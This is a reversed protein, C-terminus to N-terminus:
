GSTVPLSLFLGWAHVCLFTSPLHVPSAPPWPQVGGPRELWSGAAGGLGAAAEGGAPLGTHPDGGPVLAEGPVWRGSGRAGSMTRILSGQATGQQSGMGCLLSGLGVALAARHPVPTTRLWHGWLARVADGVLQMPGNGGHPRPGTDAGVVMARSVERGRWAWGALLPSPLGRGSELWSAEARPCTGTAVSFGQHGGWGAVGVGHSSPPM